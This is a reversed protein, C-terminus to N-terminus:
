KKGFRVVTGTLAVNTMVAGAACRFQTASDLKQGKTNSRVDVIADGGELRARKQLAVISSVFARYCADTKAKGFANARQSTPWEGLKGAVAPHKEGAMFFPIDLLASAHRSARADAVALDLYADAARASSAAGLLAAALLSTSSVLILVTRLRM